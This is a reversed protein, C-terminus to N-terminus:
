MHQHLSTQIIILIQQDLGNCFSHSWGGFFFKNMPSNNSNLVTIITIITLHFDNLSFFLLKLTHKEMTSNNQTVPAIQETTYRYM